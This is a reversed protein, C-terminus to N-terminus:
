PLNKVLKVFYLEIYRKLAVHNKIRMLSPTDVLSQALSSIREATFSETKLTRLVKRLHDKILSNVDESLNDFNEKGIRDNWEHMYGALERDLTSNEPVFQSEITVAAKRLERKRSLKPDFADENDKKNFKEEELIKQEKIYDKTISAEKEVIKKASSKKKKPKKLIL